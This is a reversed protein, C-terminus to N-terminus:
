NPTTDVYTNVTNRVTTKLTTSLPAYGLNIAISDANLLPDSSPTPDAVFDNIFGRIGAAVSGSSYVDYYLQYTVGVIPYATAQVPDPM